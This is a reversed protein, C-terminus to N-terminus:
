PTQPRRRSPERERGAWAERRTDAAWSARRPDERRLRPLRRRRVRLSRFPGHPALNLRLITAGEGHPRTAIVGRGVVVVVGDDGEQEQASVSEDRM